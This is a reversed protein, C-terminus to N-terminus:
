GNLLKRNNKRRKYGNGLVIKIKGGSGRRGYRHPPRAATTASIAVKGRSVVM